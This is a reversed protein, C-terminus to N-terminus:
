SVFGKIIAAAEAPRRKIPAHVVVPRARGPQVSGSIAALFDAMNFDMGSLGM